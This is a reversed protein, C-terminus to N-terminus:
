AGSILPSQNEKSACKGCINIGRGVIDHGDWYCRYTAGCEPCKFYPKFSWFTPCRFLYHLLKKM